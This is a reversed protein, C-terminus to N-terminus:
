RAAMPRFLDVYSGHPRRPRASRAQRCAKRRKPRARTIFRVAQFLRAPGGGDLREKLECPGFRAGRDPDRHPQRADEGSAPHAGHTHAMGKNLDVSVVDGSLQQPSIEPLYHAPNTELQELFIGDRTIKGV